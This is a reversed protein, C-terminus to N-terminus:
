SEGIRRVTPLSISRGNTTVYALGLPNRHEEMFYRSANLVATSLSPPPLGSLEELVRVGFRGGFVTPMDIMPGMVSGAGCKWLTTLFTSTADDVQSVGGQCANIFAIPATKLRGQLRDKIRRELLQSTFPGKGLSLEQLFSGGSPRFQGHCYAYILAVEPSAIDKAFAREDTHVTIKLDPRGVLATRIAQEGGPGTQFAQHIAVPVTSGWEHHPVCALAHDVTRSLGLFGRPVVSSAADDEEVIREPDTPDVYLLRWPFAFSTMFVLPAAVRHQADRQNLVM